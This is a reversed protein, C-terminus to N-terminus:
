RKMEEKYEIIKYCLSYSNIGSCFMLQISIFFLDIFFLCSHVEDSKHSIPISKNLTTNFLTCGTLVSGPEIFVACANTFNLCIMNSRSTLVYQNAHSITNQIKLLTSMSSKIVKRSSYDGVNKFLGCDLM